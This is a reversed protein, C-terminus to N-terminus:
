RKRKKDAFTTCFALATPFTLLDVQCMLWQFWFWLGHFTMYIDCTSAGLVVRVSVLEGFGRFFSLSTKKEAM